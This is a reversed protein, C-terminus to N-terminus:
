KSLSEQNRAWSVTHEKVIGDTSVNVQIQWYTKDGPAKRASNTLRFTVGYDNGNPPDCCVIEELLLFDTRIHPWFNTVAGVAITALLDDEPLKLPEDLTYSVLPMGKSSSLYAVNSRVAIPIGTADGNQLRSDAYIAEFAIGTPGETQLYRHSYRIACLGLQHDKVDPDSNTIVDIAAIAIRKLPDLNPIGPKAVSQYIRAPRRTPSHSRWTDEFANEPEGNFERASYDNRFDELSKPQDTLDIMGICFHYTTYYWKGDSARGIFVDGVRRNVKVCEACYAIWEGDAMLIVNDGLWDQDEDPAHVKEHRNLLSAVADWEWPKGEGWATIQKVSSEIFAVKEKRPTTINWIGLILIAVCFACFSLIIFSRKTKM